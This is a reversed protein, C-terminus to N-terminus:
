FDLRLSLEIERPTGSGTPSTNFASNILGYTSSSLNVVPNGLQAVNFINFAEARFTFALKETARIRKELATDIQWHGPARVLDRGANGWTGAAPTSFALPNLWDSPTPNAAYLSQGSVVNPRQSGNNQDPLATATRSVTVNLPLGSRATGVGSLKWGGLLADVIKPANGLLSHGKGVPISWIASSTFYSRMDFQSSAKECSRCNINEPTTAEAGGVAGDDIAHSWQYNAGFLLGRSLNRHLGAELAHFSSVGDTGDYTIQSYGAYPRTGTVPNVTNLISNTWLHTGESGVYSVQLTTDKALQHQVSLTWENVEMNKRNRDQATYSVSYQAAALYPTVPYSLGPVQAVNLTFQSTLNSIGAGLHGFQGQGYFIGAGARIVTKNHLSAPSWAISLRPAFDTPDPKYWSTGAPCVVTGCTTPDVVIGRGFVDHDVGWYDYRLGVNVTLNPMVKIEDLVYAGVETQRQGTMAAAGQYQYSSMNNGLFASESLYTATIVPIRPTNKDEQVRRVLIGAKFTNRGRIYTTDDVASYATDYRDDTAPLSLSSLGSISVSFPLVENGGEHYEDRNFGVRADTFLTPSFTHQLDIVANPSILQNFASNLAGTSDVQVGNPYTAYYHDTAFRGFLNTNSSITYDIRAMGSDEQVPNRGAGSFSLANPDKTPTGGKVFSNVIPALAPSTAIVSATYAPTPVLGTVQQALVQRYAEWNSFFFLKNKIAPGGLNAGFNNLQLQPLSASGWPRADFASNRLYEWVSSHFTNTGSKTVIEIQGGASGGQDATYAASSARFEAIAEVPIQLRLDVKEFQHNIGGSDVGDMHFNNDEQSLGVFRIQDETSGGDDIAGPVLSELREFSRGNMPLDQVQAGQIVGGVAASTQNIEDAAATVQVTTGVNGVTLTANLTRTEGVQLEFAQFQLTEFGTATVSATYSGVPLSTFSYAGVGNTSASRELGTAVAKLRVTAREITASSSDVITGTLTARDTQASLLVPLAILAWLARVM